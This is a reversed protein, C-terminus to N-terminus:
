QCCNPMKLLNYMSIPCKLAFRGILSGAPSHHKTTTNIATAFADDKQPSKVCVCGRHPHATNKVTPFLYVACATRRTVKGAHESVEDGM